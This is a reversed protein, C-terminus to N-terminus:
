GIAAVLREMKDQSSEISKMLKFQTRCRDLNHSPHQVKYYTDGSLFDTLFRIGQEFTILKGAAVLHSKESPTLFKGAEALYGRLIAEFLPFHLSVKGLDQEDEPAPTTMTRVMDGFDYPALGPMVTDLDIVCIGEGSADDLLVNNIKTDNHIVREPLDADLLLRTLSQRSLVFDIEPKAQTARNVVDAAIAQQLTAFRQPTNHFGVITEHLRPAPLTSLLQQFRGFARAAQFAQEPSAVVDSTHADPIFRYARWYNQEDDVHWASGDQTPILTLVRRAADPVCALQQALHTTIRQINRMLASPQTFVVHNIRQLIIRVPAGAHHFVACYTDNIHGSGYPVAAAFEGAIQFHRAVAGLKDAESM